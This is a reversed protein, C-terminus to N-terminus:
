TYNNTISIGYVVGRLSFQFGIGYCNAERVDVIFFKTENSHDREIRYPNIRFM